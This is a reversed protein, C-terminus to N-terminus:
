RHYYLIEKGDVLRVMNTFIILQLQLLYLLRGSRPRSRNKGAYDAYLRRRDAYRM